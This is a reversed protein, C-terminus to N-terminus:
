PGVVITGRMSPHLTCAYLYSGPRDFRVGFSQGPAILGSDVGDQEVQESNITVTHPLGDLNTWEVTTGVQTRVTAHEVNTISVAALSETSITLSRADRVDAESARPPVSPNWMSFVGLPNDEWVWAHIMWGFSPSWLGGQSECEEQTSSRPQVMPGGGCVSYHVHWNDLPGAFGNPHGQGFQQTLMIFATGELQWKGEDDRAYMLIEPRAPDFSGDQIREFNMFHAGMNPVETGVQAFGDSRAVTVDRYKETAIRLEELQEVLQELEAKSMGLDEPLVEQNRHMERLRLYSLPMRVQEGMPGEVLTAMVQGGIEEFVYRSFGFAGQPRDPASHPPSADTILAEAPLAVTPVHRVVQFPDPVPTAAIVPQQALSDHTVCAAGVLVSLATIASVLLTTTVHGTLWPRNVKTARLNM